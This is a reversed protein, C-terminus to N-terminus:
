LTKKWNQMFEDVLNQRRKQKELVQDGLAQDAALSTTVASVASEMDWYFKPKRNYGNLWVKLQASNGFGGFQDMFHILPGHHKSMQIRCLVLQQAGRMSSLLYITKDFVDPTIELIEGKPTVGESSKDEQTNYHGMAGYLLIEMDINHKFLYERLAEGTFVASKPYLLMLRSLVEPTDNLTIILDPGEAGGFTFPIAQIINAMMCRIRECHAMIKPNANPSFTVFTKGTLGPVDLKMMRSDTTM